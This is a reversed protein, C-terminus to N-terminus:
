DGLGRFVNYMQKAYTEGSSYAFYTIIVDLILLAILLPLFTSAYPITMFFSFMFAVVLMIINLLIGASLNRYFGYICNYEFLINDFRTDSRMRGVAEDILKTYNKDNGSKDAVSNLDIMYLTNIKERISNKTVESFTKDGSLLMKTSPKLTRSFLLKGPFIKSVDRILFVYLFFVASTISTMGLLTMIIYKLDSLEEGYLNFYTLGFLCPIVLSIYAPRYRAWDNYKKDRIVALEDSINEM